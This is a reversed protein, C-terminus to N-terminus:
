YKYYVEVIIKYHMKETEVVHTHMIWFGFFIKYKNLEPWMSDFAFCAIERM